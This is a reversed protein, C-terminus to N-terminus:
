ADAVLQISRPLAQGYVDRRRTIYGRRELTKIMQNASPASVLFHRAIDTEAPAVGYRDTYRGIFELYEHQRRTPRPTSSARAAGDDVERVTADLADENGHVVLCYGDDFHVALSSGSTQVVRAVVRGTLRKTLRSSDM